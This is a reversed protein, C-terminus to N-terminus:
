GVYEVDPGLFALRKIRDDMVLWDVICEPITVSLIKKRADEDLVTSLMKATERVRWGEFSERQSYDVHTVEWGSDSYLKGTVEDSTVLIGSKGHYKEAHEVWKPPNNIDPVPSIEILELNDIEEFKLWTEIMLKREEWTWPNDPSEEKNASGIVIRLPMELNSNEWVEIASKVLFAHGRHFPQFRGLVIIGPNPINEPALVERTIEKYEEM